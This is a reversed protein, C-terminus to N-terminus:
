DGSHVSKRSLICLIDSERVILRDENEIRIEQGANKAYVVRDGVRVTTPWLTGNPLPTGPGVAVVEGECPKEKSSDPIHIGGPTVKESDLRRVLVNNHLPQIPMEDEKIIPWIRMKSEQADSDAFLEQFLLDIFVM